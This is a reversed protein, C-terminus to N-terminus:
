GRKQEQYAVEEVPPPDGRAMAAWQQSSSVQPPAPVIYLNQVPGSQAQPAGFGLGKTAMAACDILEKNSFPANLALREALKEMAKNAVATLRDKVTARLFPDVLEDKREKLRNQFSDSNVVISVWAASYGFRAAIENQSVSPESVIMDIMADHTYRVKAIEPM